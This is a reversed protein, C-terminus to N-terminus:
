SGIGTRLDLLPSSRDDRRSVAAEWLARNGWIWLTRRARTLGTYLIQRTLLPSDEEPLVLLVHDFESGQSKHITIAWAAELGELRGPAHVSETEGRPFRVAPLGDALSTLGLDGNWLDLAALNRTLLVPRGPIWSRPMGGVAGHAERLHADGLANIRERGAPGHHTACLIRSTGIEHALSSSTAGGLAHVQWWRRLVEGLDGELWTVNGSAASDALSISSAQLSPLSGALDTGGRNVEEGLERITGANRWTHTLRVYPRGDPALTELHAVLDAFLGGADVSPLQDPDGLILLRARPHLASLLGAFLIQDVMSAEDLVVTRWPLPRSADHRFTGDPRAGLLSHLTSAAVAAHSPFQRAISEQLRAKARGTPACLITGDSSYGPDHEALAQLIRAVVTTKGTGPGGAVVAVRHTLAMRVAETQQPHLPPGVLALVSPLSLGALPPEGLLERLGRSLDDECERYRAYALIPSGGRTTRRVLDRPDDGCADSASRLMSALSARHRAMHEHLDAFPGPTWSAPPVWEIWRDLDDVLDELRASGRGRALAAALLLQLLKAPEDRGLWRTRRLDLSALAGQAFLCWAFADLPESPLRIGMEARRSPELWSGLYAEWSRQIRPDLPATM